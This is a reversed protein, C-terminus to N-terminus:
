FLYNQILILLRKMTIRLTEEQGRESSLVEDDLAHLRRRHRGGDDHVEAEGDGDEGEDQEDSFLRLYYLLAL